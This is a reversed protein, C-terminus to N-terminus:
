WVAEIVRRTQIGADICSNRDLKRTRTPVLFRGARGDQAELPPTHEFVCITM